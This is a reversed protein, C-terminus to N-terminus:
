RHKTGGTVGIAGILVAVALLSNPVGVFITSSGLWTMIQDLINTPTPTGYSGGYTNPDYMSSEPAADGLGRFNPHLGSTNRTTSQAYNGIGRFNPNLGANNRTSLTAYAMVAGGM